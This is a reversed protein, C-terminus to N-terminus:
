PTEGEEVNILAPWKDLPCRFARGRAKIALQCGCELCRNGKRSDCTDCVKLREEYQEKSVLRFGDSVFDTLSQALNWGQKLFSPFRRNPQSSASPRDLPTRRGESPITRATCTQCIVSTVLGGSVRVKLHSCFFVGDRETAHRYDCSPLKSQDSTTPSNEM